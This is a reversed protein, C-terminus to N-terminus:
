RLRKCSLTHNQEPGFLTGTLSGSATSTLLASFPERLMAGRLCSGHATVEVLGLASSPPAWHTPYVVPQSRMSGLLIRPGDFGASLTLLADPGPPRTCPPFRPGPAFPRTEPASGPVATYVNAKGGTSPSVVVAAGESLALQGGHAVLWRKARVNGSRDLDYLDEFWGNSDLLAASGDARPIVEIFGSSGRSLIQTVGDSRALVVAMRDSELYEALAFGRAVFIAAIVPEGQSGGIPMLSVDRGWYARGEGTLAASEVHFDGQADRGSWILKEGNRELLGGLAPLRGARFKDNPLPELKYLRSFFEGEPLLPPKAECIFGPANTPPAEMPSRPQYPAEPAVDSAASSPPPEEQDDTARESVSLLTEGQVPEDTYAVADDAACGHAWCTVRLAVGLDVGSPVSTLSRGGDNTVSTQRDHVLLGHLADAFGLASTDPVAFVEPVAGPELGLRVLEPPRQRGSRYRLYLVHEPFIAIGLPWSLDGPLSPLASTDRVDLAGVLLQEGRNLLVHGSGIAIPRTGAPPVSRWASGDFLELTEPDNIGADDLKTRCALYRGHPDAVLDRCYAPPQVIAEPGDPGYVLPSDRGRACALVVRKGWPLATNCLGEYVTIRGDERRFGLLGAASRVWTGDDLRIGSTIRGAPSELARVLWAKLAPAAQDGYIEAFRPLQPDGGLWSVVDDRDAAPRSAVESFTQGGDRTEFLRDPAAIGHGLEPSSFGLASLTPEHHPIVRVGHRSIQEFHGHLTFALVVPGCEILQETWRINTAGSPVLQGLFTQSWFLEGRQTYFLYGGDSPCARVLAHLTADRSFTVQEGRQEARLGGVLLQQTGDGLRAVRVVGGPSPYAVMHWAPPLKAATASSPPTARVTAHV